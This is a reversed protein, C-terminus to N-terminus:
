CRGTDPRVANKRVTANWPKMREFHQAYSSCIQVVHPGLISQKLYTIKEHLTQLGGPPDRLMYSLQRSAYLQRVANLLNKWTPLTERTPWKRRSSYVLLRGVRRIMSPSWFKYWSYYFLELLQVVFLLPVGLNTGRIISPM